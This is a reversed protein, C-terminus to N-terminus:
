PTQATTVPYGRSEWVYFGEDLVATREFGAERLADVAQGSIAHPCGCYAIIWTDSPLVDLYTEISYFPIGVAGTIHSLLFDSTARADLLVVRQGAEIAGHVADVGVFRGERLAFTPTPGDPHLVAADLDPEYPEPPRADVPRRWTRIAAVLDDIAADSLRDGYAPMSTGPRGAIISQRIFGDSALEQFWPHNLRIATVGEGETGHCSACQAQYRPMGRTAVGRVELGHVDISPETQWQRIWAVVADIDEESLPGGVAQGWGSMPTGPRGHLTSLRLFDDTAIQLFAPNSLANAQDAVYGEGDAGHCFACYRDYLRQGHALQASDVPDGGRELPAGDAEDVAGGHAQTGGSSCGFMM